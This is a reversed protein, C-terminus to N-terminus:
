VAVCVCMIENFKLSNQAFEVTRTQLGYWMEIYLWIENLTARVTAITNRQKATQIFHLYYAKVM